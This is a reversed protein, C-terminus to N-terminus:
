AGPNTLVTQIVAAITEPRDDKVLIYGPIGSIRTYAM